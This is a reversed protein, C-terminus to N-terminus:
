LNQFLGSVVKKATVGNQAPIPQQLRSALSAFNKTIQLTEFDLLSITQQQEKLTRSM